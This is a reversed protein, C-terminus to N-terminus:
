THSINLIQLAVNMKLSKVIGTNSIENYSLNLEQLTNINKLSESIAVAGDDSINNHSIDLKELSTNGILAKAIIVVGEKTIDHKSIDLVKVFKNNEAACYCLVKARYAPRRNQIDLKVKSTTTFQDFEKDRQSDFHVLVTVINQSIDVIENYSIQILPINNYKKYLTMLQSKTVINHTLDLTHIPNNPSNCISNLIRVIGEITIKNQSINVEKTTSSVNM